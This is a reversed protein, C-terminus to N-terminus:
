HGAGIAEKPQGGYIRVMGRRFIEARQERTMKSTRKRAVAAWRTGDTQEPYDLVKKKAHRATKMALAFDAKGEGNDVGSESLRM